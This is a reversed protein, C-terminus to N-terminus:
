LLSVVRGDLIDRDFLEKNSLGDVPTDKCRFEAYQRIIRQETDYCEQGSEFQRTWIIEYQTKVQKYRVDVTNNTVGIKYVTRDPTPRFAIYYLIAPAKVKFGFSQSCSCEAGDRYHHPWRMSAEGCKGCLISVKTQSGLYLYDPAMSDGREVIKRELDKQAEIPCRNRCRPCSMGDRMYDNPVGDFERDCVGCVLHVRIQTNVYEFRDGMIDGNELVRAIFNKKATVPCQGACVICGGGGKRNYANPSKTSETRCKGCFISVPVQTNVYNYNSGPRDGNKRMLAEFKERAVRVRRATGACGKCGGIFDPHKYTAPTKRFESGCHGCLLDIPTRNDVYVFTPAELDGKVTMVVKLRERGERRGRENFSECCSEQCERDHVDGLILDTFSLQNFM